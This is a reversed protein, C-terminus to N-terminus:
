ITSNKQIFINMDGQLILENDVTIKGSVVLIDGLNSTVIIETTLKSNIKPIKFIELRKVAGIFGIDPKAKELFAKYGARLAVTQAMNEILGPETFYKGDSFINNGQPVFESVTHDDTSEVLRDIMVMPAKQPILNSIHIGSNM